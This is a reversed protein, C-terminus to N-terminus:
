TTFVGLAARLFRTADDIRRMDIAWRWGLYNNLYRTAVGHSHRLWAKFRSHYGNINQIHLAGEACSGEGDQWSGPAAM